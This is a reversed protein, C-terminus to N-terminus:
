AGAAALRKEARRAEAFCRVREPTFPLARRAVALLGRWARRERTGWPLEYHARLRPPLLGAAILTTLASLSRLWLPRPPRLVARALRRATPTIELACSALM